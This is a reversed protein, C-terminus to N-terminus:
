QKIGNGIYILSFKTRDETTVLFEFATNEAPITVFLITRQESAPTILRDVEVPEVDNGDNAVVTIKEGAYTLWFYSSAGGNSIRLVFKIVSSKFIGQRRFLQLTQVPNEM